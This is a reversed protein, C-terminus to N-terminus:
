FFMPDSAAQSTQQAVLAAITFCQLIAMAFLNLQATTIWTLHNTFLVISIDQLNVPKLTAYLSEDIVM